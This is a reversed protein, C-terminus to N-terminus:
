PTSTRRQQMMWWYLREDAFTQTWADHKVNPYVIFAVDGGAARLADVMQQSESIPIADDIAGHYVRTPVHAIKKVYPPDGGGCIAVLCAFRNPNQIALRWAGFAGRSLGALYIRDPDVPHHDVVHDLLRILMQDDWFQQESPNQPSLVFFPFEKGGEILMPPGHQKVREIDDGGEGGGHLFLLLPFGKGDDGKVGSGPSSAPQYLLYDMTQKSSDIFEMARQEAIAAPPNASSVLLTGLVLLPSFTTNFM